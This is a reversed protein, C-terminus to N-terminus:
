SFAVADCPSGSVAIAAMATIAATMPTGENNIAMLAKCRCQAAFAVASATVSIGSSDSCTTPPL